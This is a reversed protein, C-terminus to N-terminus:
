QTQLSEQWEIDVVYGSSADMGWNAAGGAGTPGRGQGQLAFTQSTGRMALPIALQDVCIGTDRYPNTSSSTTSSDLVMSQSILSGLLFRVNAFPGQTSGAVWTSRVQVWMAIIKATVAWAPVPVAFSAPSPWNAWATASNLLNYNGSTFNM